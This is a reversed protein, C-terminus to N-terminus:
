SISRPTFSLRATVQAGPELVQIGTDSRGSAALNFADTCNSVPEVCFYDEGPPVYVVLFGLPGDVEIALGTAREPWRIEARGDWGAFVNDLDHDSIRLGAAPDLAPPVAILHTPMVEADSEWFGTITAHLTCRRSRPFYPHLGFGYPMAQDGRNRTVLEITLRKDRLCFHQEMEYNFPWADADHELRLVAHDVGARAVQWPRQWGHGHEVHPGMTNRPMVIHRGRFAFRGDRVRNSFPTLPFASAGEVDGRARAAESMPRMLDIDAGDPHRWRFAAIAGGLAPCLDLALAPASLHLLAHAPSNM